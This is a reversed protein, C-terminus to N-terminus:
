LILLLELFRVEKNNVIHALADTDIRALLHFKQELRSLRNELQFTRAYLLLFSAAFVLCFVPILLRSAPVSLCAALLRGGSPKEGGGDSSLSLSQGTPSGPVGVTEYDRLDPAFTRSSSMSRTCMVRDDFAVLSRRPARPGVPGATLLTGMEEARTGRTTGESGFYDSTEMM